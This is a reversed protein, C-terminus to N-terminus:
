YIDMICYHGVQNQQQSVLISLGQYIYIYFFILTTSTTALYTYEIWKVTTFNFNYSAKTFHQLQIFLKFRTIALNDGPLVDDCPCPYSGEPARLHKALSSQGWSSPRSSNVSTKCIRMCVCVCVCKKWLSFMSWMVFYLMKWWRIIDYCSKFNITCHQANHM